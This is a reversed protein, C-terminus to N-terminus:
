KKGKFRSFFGKKQPQPTPVIEEVEKMSKLEALRTKLQAIEMELGDTQAKELEIKQNLDICIEEGSQIYKNSTTINITHLEDEACVDCESMHVSFEFGKYTNKFFDLVKLKTTLDDETEEKKEEVKENQEKNEVKMESKDTEEIQKKEEAKESTEFYEKGFVGLKKLKVQVGYLQVNMNINKTEKIKSSIHNLTLILSPTTQPLREFLYGKEVKKKSISHLPELVDEITGTSIEDIVVGLTKGSENSVWMIDLESRIIETLKSTDHEQNQYIISSIPLVIKGKGFSFLIVITPFQVQKWETSVYDITKQTLINANETVTNELQKGFEKLQKTDEEKFENLYNNLYNFIDLFMKHSLTIELDDSKGHIYVNSPVGRESQSDFVLTIMISFKDAFFLIDKVEQEMCYAEVQELSITINVINPKTVETPKYNTKLKQNCIELTQESHTEEKNNLKLLGFKIFAESNTVLKLALVTKHLEISIHMTEFLDMLSKLKFYELFREYKTSMEKYKSITTEKFSLFKETDINIPNEDVKKKLSLKLVDILKSILNFDMSIGLGNCKLDVDIGLSGKPEIGEKKMYKSVILDISKEEEVIWVIPERKETSDIYDIAITGMSFLTKGVYMCLKEDYEIGELGFHINTLHIKLDGDVLEKLTVQLDNVLIIIESQDSSIDTSNDNEKQESTKTEIGESNKDNFMASFINQAITVIIEYVKKDLVVNLSPIKWKQQASVVHGEKNRRFNMEVDFPVNQVLDVEKETTKLTMKLSNFHLDFINEITKSTMEKLEICLTYGEIIINLHITDVTFEIFPLLYEFKETPNEINQQDNLSIDFNINTIHWNILHKESIRSPLSLTAEELQFTDISISKPFQFYRCMFSPKINFNKLQIEKDNIIIDDKSQCLINLCNIIDKNNPM